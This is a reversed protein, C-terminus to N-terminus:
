TLRIKVTGNTHYYQGVAIGGASALTDNAFNDAPNVICFVGDKNPVQQIRPQSLLNADITSGVGSNKAIIITGDPLIGVGRGSADVNLVAIYNNTENGIDTIEQLSPKPLNFQTKRVRYATGLVNVPFDAINPINGSYLPLEFIKKSSM